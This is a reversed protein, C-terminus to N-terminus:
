HIYKIPSYPKMSRIHQGCKDVLELSVKFDNLQNKMNYIMLVDSIFRVHEQAMEVMPLMAAMDANVSFFKGEYLLDQKKVKKFLGAYFTRLHSFGGAEYRFLNNAVVEAELPICFGLKRLPYIEFQGYTLWVNSDAYVQNIYSLVGDHAFWDDGDLIIIIDSDQCSHIVKYQNKLAGKRKKNKILTVKEAIKSHMLYEEVLQGTRDTSCDDIYILKFNDYKQNVISSLNKEYWEQNNYSATVIVIKREFDNKPYIPMFFFLLIVLIRM